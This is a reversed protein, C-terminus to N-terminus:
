DGTVKLTDISHDGIFAEEVAARRLCDRRYDDRYIKSRGHTLSRLEKESMGFFRVEDGVVDLLKRALDIGMGQMSAFAIRYTMLSYAQDTM